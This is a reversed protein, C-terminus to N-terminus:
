VTIKNYILTYLDQPFDEPLVKKLFLAHIKATKISKECERIELELNNIQKELEKEVVTTLCSQSMCIDCYEDLNIINYIDDEQIKIVDEIDLFEIEDMVTFWLLYNDSISTKSITKHYVGFGGKYEYHLSTDQTLFLSVLYIRYINTFTKLKDETMVFTCYVFQEDEGTFDLTIKIINNYKIFNFIYYRELRIYHFCSFQM